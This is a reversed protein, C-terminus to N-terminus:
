RAGEPLTTKVASAVVLAAKHLAETPDLREIGPAIFNKVHDANSCFVRFDEYLSLDIVFGKNKHQLWSPCAEPVSGWILYAMQRLLWDRSAPRTLDRLLTAQADYLYVRQFLPLEDWTKYFRQCVAVHEKALREAEQQLGLFDEPLTTQPNM